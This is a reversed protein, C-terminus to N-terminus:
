ANKSRAFAPLKPLPGKAGADFWETVALRVTSSHKRCAVGGWELLLRMAGHLNVIEGAAALLMNGAEETDDISGRTAPHSIMQMAFERMEALSYGLPQEVPGAVAPAMKRPEPIHDTSM